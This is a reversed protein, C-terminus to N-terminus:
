RRPQTKGGCGSGCMGAEAKLLYGWMEWLKIGLGIGTAEFNQLSSRSSPLRVCNSIEPAKLAPGRLLRHRTFQFRQIQPGQVRFM